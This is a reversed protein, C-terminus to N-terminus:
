GLGLLFAFASVGVSVPDAHGAPASAPRGVAEGAELREWLRRMALSALDAIGPVPLQGPSPAAHRCEDVAPGQHRCRARSGSVASIALLRKGTRSGALWFTQVRWPMQTM